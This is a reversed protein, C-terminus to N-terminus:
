LEIKKQGIVKGYTGELEEDVLKQAEPSQMQFWDLWEEVRKWEPLGKVLKEFEELTFEKYEM